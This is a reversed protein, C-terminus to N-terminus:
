LPRLLTGNVIGKARELDEPLTIKFNLRDGEVVRVRGGSHLYISADDPADHIGEAQARLHADLIRQYPFGQPTQVCLTKERDLFGRAWEGQVEVLSDVSKIAPIVAQPACGLLRSLLEPSVFPRAADHLFVYDPPSDKLALLGKLSSEQRTAGGRVVKWPKRLSKLRAETEGEWGEPVVVVGMELPKLADFAMISYLFLPRDGLKLFGKPIDAGLREGRGASLIVAAVKM